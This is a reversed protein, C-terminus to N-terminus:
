KIGEPGLKLLVELKSIERKEGPPPYQESEYWCKNIGDWCYLPQYKGEERRTYTILKIYSNEAVYEFYQTM